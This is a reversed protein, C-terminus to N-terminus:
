GQPTSSLVGSIESQLAQQIRWVDTKRVLEDDPRVRLFGEPEYIWRKALVAHEGVMQWLRLKEEDQLSIGYRKFIDYLRLALPALKRQECTRIWDTQLQRVAEENEGLKTHKLSLEVFQRVFEEDVMKAKLSYMFRLAMVCDSPDIEAKHEELFCSAEEYQRKAVLVAAYLCHVRSQPLFNQGKHLVYQINRKSSETRQALCYLLLAVIGNSCYLSSQFKMWTNVAEEWGLKKLVNSIFVSTLTESPHLQLIELKVLTRLLDICDDIKEVSPHPLREFCKGFLRNYEHMTNFFTDYNATAGSFLRRLEFAYNIMKRISIEDGENSLRRLVQLLHYNKVPSYSPDDEKQWRASQASLLILMKKVNGWEEHDLYLQLVGPIIEEYNTDDPWGYSSLFAHVKSSDRDDVFKKLRDYTVRVPPSKSAIKKEAEFTLAYNEKLWGQLESAFPRILSQVDATKKELANREQWWSYLTQWVSTRSVGFSKLIKATKDLRTQDGRASTRQKDYLPQLVLQSLTSIDLESLDKYGANSCRFIIKLREEVDEAGALLPLILHPRTRDRDVMDLLANVYEMKKDMSFEKYMVVAYLLDDHIRPGNPNNKFIAVVRNAIDNLKMVSVESRVVQRSLQAIMQNLFMSKQQNKLCDAIKNTDELLAIATYYHQHTIHREVERILQRFFGAEHSTHDLMQETLNVFEAGDGDRSKEALLWVTELVDSASLILKREPGMVARRLVKRLRNLDVRAAAAKACAGQASSVADAGFKGLAQEALSDAKAHHGRVAFCYVLADNCARNVVFGRRAMEYVDGQRSLNELLLEFTRHDPELKRKEEVDKLVEFSNFQCDIELLSSLLANISAVCLPIGKSDVQKWLRALIQQRSSNPINSCASGCARFIMPLWRASSRQLTTVFAEDDGELRKVVDLFLSSASIRYNRGLNEQMKSLVTEPFRAKERKENRAPVGRFDARNILRNDDTEISNVNSITGYPLALASATSCYRLAIPFSRLLKSTALLM